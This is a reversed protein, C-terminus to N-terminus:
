VEGAEGEGADGSASASPGTRRWERMLGRVLHQFLLAGFAFFGARVVVPGDDFM